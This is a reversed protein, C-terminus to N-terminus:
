SASPPRTHPSAIADHLPDNAAPPPSTRPMDPFAAALPSPACYTCAALCQALCSKVTGHQVRDGCCLTDAKAHHSTMDAAHPHHQQRAPLAFAAQGLAFFLLLLLALMLRLPNSSALRLESLV